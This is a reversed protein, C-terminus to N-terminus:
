KLLPEYFPSTSRHEPAHPLLLYQCLSFKGFFIGDCFTDDGFHRDDLKSLIGLLDLSKIRVCFHENKGFIRPQERTGLSYRDILCDCVDEHLM